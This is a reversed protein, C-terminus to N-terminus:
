SARCRAGTTLSLCRSGLVSCLRRGNRSVGSANRAMPKEVYCPKGAAAVRLAYELHHGPPTAIYVADVEPDDILEERTPPPARWATAARL